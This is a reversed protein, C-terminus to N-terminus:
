CRNEAPASRIRSFGLTLELYNTVLQGTDLFRVRLFIWYNRSLHQSRARLMMDEIDRSSLTYVLYWRASQMIMDRQFHRGSFSIATMPISGFPVVMGSCAIQSSVGSASRYKMKKFPGIM